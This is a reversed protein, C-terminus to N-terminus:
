ADAAPLALPSAHHHCMRWEGGERVFVNTAILPAGGVLERCIVYAAEGLLHVTEGGSMIRVQNPNGLIARWSGLVSERGTLANAHPHICVVPADLAWLEEMRQVDRANFAAYFEANAQLVGEESSVTV